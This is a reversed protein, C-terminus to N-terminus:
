VEAGSAMASIVDNVMELPIQTMTHIQEASYGGDSFRQITHSLPEAVEIVHGDPDFMRFAMQGWPQFEIKSIIGAGFDVAKKFDEELTESEFCLEFNHGDTNKGGGFITKTALERQWLAIGGEFSVYAGESEMAIKQGLLSLYFEKSTEVDDVFIATVTLQM